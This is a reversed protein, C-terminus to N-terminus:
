TLGRGRERLEPNIDTVVGSIPSPLKADNEERKLSIDQWSQELEKDMLPAQIQDLPGL